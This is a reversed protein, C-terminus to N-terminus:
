PLRMRAVESLLPDSRVVLGFAVRHPRPVVPFISACLFPLPPVKPGTFFVNHRLFRQLPALLEPLNASFVQPSFSFDMNAHQFYQSFPVVTQIVGCKRVFANPRKHRAVASFFRYCRFNQRYLVVLSSAAAVIVSFASAAFVRTNAPFSHSLPV